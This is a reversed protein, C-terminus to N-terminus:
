MYMVRRGIVYAPFTLILHLFIKNVLIITLNSELRKATTGPAILRLLINWALQLDVIMSCLVFLYLHIHFLIWLRLSVAPQM